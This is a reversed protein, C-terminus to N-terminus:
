FSPVDPTKEIDVSARRAGDSSDSGLVPTKSQAEILSLHGQRNGLRGQQQRSGSSREAGGIRRRESGDAREVVEERDDVFQDGGREGVVVEGIEPALESQNGVSPSDIPWAQPTPHHRRVM